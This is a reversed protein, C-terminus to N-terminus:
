SCLILISCGWLYGGNVKIFYSTVSLHISPRLLFFERLLKEVTATLCVGAHFSLLESHQLQIEIYFKEVAVENSKPEGYPHMINHWVVNEPPTCSLIHPAENGLSHAAYGANM